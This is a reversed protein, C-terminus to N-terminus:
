IKQRHDRTINRHKAQPWRNRSKNDSIEQTLRDLCVNTDSIGNLFFYFLKEEQREFM